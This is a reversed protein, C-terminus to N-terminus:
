PGPLEIFGELKRIRTPHRIKRLAKAEIQSVRMHTIQFQRGVEEPTRCYGDRIGFRLVLVDRERETLTGLVYEMEEKLSQQDVGSFGTALDYISSDLAMRNIMEIRPLLEVIELKSVRLIKKISDTPLHITKSIEDLTPSRGYEEALRSIVQKMRGSIGRVKNPIKILSSREEIAKKMANEIPRFSYSFLDSQRRYDYKEIAEILGFYGEQVLDDPEIGADPFRDAISKLHKLCAGAIAMKLTLCEKLAHRLNHSNEEFSEQTHWLRQQLEHLKTQFEKDEPDTQLKRGYKWFKQMYDDVQECFDEVVNQKYYFRILVRNLTQLNTGFQEKLQAKDHPENESLQRYIADNEAHLQKLQDCLKPLGKIYRERSKIKKDLIVRDFPEKGKNLKDALDLYCDTVFGFRHLQCAVEAETKEIHKFLATFEEQKLPETSNVSKLHKQVYYGDIEELVAPTEIIQNFAISWQTRWAAHDNPNRPWQLHEMLISHIRDLLPPPDDMSWSISQIVPRAGGGADHFRLFAMGPDKKTGYRTIFLLDGQPFVARQAPNTSARKRAVLSSLIERMTQVPLRRTEFDVFFVAWPQGGPAPRLQSIKRIKAAEAEKIGLEAPTYDFTLDEFPHDGLNWNLKECLFRSLADFTHLM